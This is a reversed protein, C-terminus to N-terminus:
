YFYLGVKKKTNTAATASMEAGAKGLIIHALAAFAHCRLYARLYVFFIHFLLGCKPRRRAQKGGVL